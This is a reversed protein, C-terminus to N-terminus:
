KLYLIAGALDGNSKKLAKIAQEKTCSTQEMVTEIDEQKIDQEIEEDGSIQYTEQGGMNIKLIQPNRLVINKGSARIIVETASIEQQKIGLKKMAQRMQRPNMGPFM